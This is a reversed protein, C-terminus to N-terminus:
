DANRRLLPLDVERELTHQESGDSTRRRRADDVDHLTSSSLVHTHQSCIREYAASRDGDGLSRARCTCLLHFRRRVCLENWLQEFQQAGDVDGNACLLDVMEEHVFPAAHTGGAEADHLAAGIVREFRAADPAGDACIATLITTADVFVLRLERQARLPQCGLAALAALIAECHQATTIVLAPHGRDLGAAVFRGVTRVYEREDDYLQLIHSSCLRPAIREALRGFERDIPRRPTPVRNPGQSDLM